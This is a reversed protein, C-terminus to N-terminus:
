EKVPYSFSGYGSGTTDLINVKFDGVTNVYAIGTIVSPLSNSVLPCNVANSFKPKPLFGIALHGTKTAQVGRLNVYCVGNYVNYSVSSATLEADIFTSITTEAVDAIRTNCILNWPSWKEDWWNKSRTAILKNSAQYATQTLMTRGTSLNKKRCEVCFLTANALNVLSGTNSTNHFIVDINEKINDLVDEIVVAETYTKEEISLVKSWTLGTGDTGKLQGIWMENPAVSDGYSKKVTISFRGQACKTIELLGSNVPIDTVGTNNAGIIAKSGNPMAMYVDSTTCPAVLGLESLYCYTKMNSDKVRDYIVKASAVQENTVSDDLVTAIKDKDVKGDVTTITAYKGDADAKKLFDNDVETKSYYGNLDVNTDGIKVPANADDVIYIDYVGGNNMLYLHDKSTMDVVDTVIKYSAGLKNAIERLTFDKSDQLCKQIETYIKSSSFTKTTTVVADDLIKNMTEIDNTSLGLKSLIDQETIEKMETKDVKEDIATAFNNFSTTLVDLDIKLAFKDDIEDKSYVSSFDCTTSGLEVAVGNILMMQMYDNNMDSPDKYLYLVNEKVVLAKDDIVEKTLRSLGALATDVYRQIDNELASMEADIRYSSYTTNTAVNTDAILDTPLNAILNVSKCLKKIAELEMLTYSKNAM